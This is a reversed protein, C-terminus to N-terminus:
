LTFLSMELLNFRIFSECWILNQTIIVTIIPANVAIEEAKYLMALDDHQFSQYFQERKHIHHQFDGM